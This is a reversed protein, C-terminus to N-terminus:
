RQGELVERSLLKEIRKAEALLVPTKMVKNKVLYQIASHDRGMVAGIEPYSMRFERLVWATIGRKDVVSASRSPGSLEAVTTGLLKTIRRFIYDHSPM